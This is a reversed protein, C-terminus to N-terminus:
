PTGVSFFKLKCWAKKVRCIFNRDIMYGIMKSINRKKCIKKGKDKPRRSKNINSDMSNNNLENEEM